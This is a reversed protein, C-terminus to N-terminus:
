YYSKKPEKKFTKINRNSLISCITISKHGLMKSLFYIASSEMEFNLIRLDNFKFNSIKVGYLM